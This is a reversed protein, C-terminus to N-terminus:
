TQEGDDWPNSPDSRTAHELWLNHVLWSTALRSRHKANLPMGRLKHSLVLAAAANRFACNLLTTMSLDVKMGIREPAKCPLVLGIAAAADGGVAARWEPMTSSIAAVCTAVEGMRTQDFEEARFTRWYSLPAAWNDQSGREGSKKAFDDM